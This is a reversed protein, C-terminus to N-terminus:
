KEKMIKKIYDEKSQYFKCKEKQCFLETLANCHKGDKPNKLYAFCDTKIEYDNNNM